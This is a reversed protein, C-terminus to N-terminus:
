ESNIPTLLYARLNVCCGPTLQSAGVIQGKKNIAHVQSFGGDSVVPTGLDTFIGNEWLFSHLVVNGAIASSGGVEGERNIANAESSDGGLTGLDKMQPNSPIGHSGGPTWLFAHLFGSSTTSVGVVDGRVNVAAARSFTGGLTGLDKMQLNSLVGDTGGPTWLFAHEDGSATASGGVVQNKNSVAGAASFDGGLTGLDLPVAAANEWFAAHFMPFGVSNSTGAIQGQHNISVAISTTGGPLTALPIVVGGKWLVAHSVAAATETEGVIDGHNNVGVATGASDGPLTPLSTPTTEGPAWFVPHATNTFGTLASKGVVLGSDNIAFAESVPDGPLPLLATVAFKQANAARQAILLTAIKSRHQSLSVQPLLLLCLLLLLRLLM